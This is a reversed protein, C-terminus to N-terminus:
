QDDRGKGQGIDGTKVDRGAQIGISQKGVHQSQKGRASDKARTALFTGLLTLLTALAASGSEFGPDVVVWAVALGFALAAIAKIAGM